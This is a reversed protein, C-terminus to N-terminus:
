GAARRHLAARYATPSRGEYRHFARNFQSISNFGAHDSVVTVALRPDNLQKKANEIRLRTLYETFTMGTSKKFTKCFHYKSVHVHASVDRLTIRGGARERAFTKAKSIAEPEERRKALLLRNASEALQDAFLTLLRLAGRFERPSVVPTQLYARKALRIEAKMGWEQLQRGLRQFQRLGPKQCFVQGGFLTAVHKGAIVIPVAVDVMGAFCCVKQPALKREFRRELKKRVEICVGCGAASTMMLACFPNGADTIFRAEASKPVLKLSLRTADRFGRKFDRLLRSNALADYIPANM